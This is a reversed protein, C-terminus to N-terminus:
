DIKLAHRVPRHTELEASQPVTRSTPTALHLGLVVVLGMTLNMRLSGHVRAGILVETTSLALFALVGCLAAAAHIRMPVDGERWVRVLHAVIVYWLYCWAALGVIGAEALVHLYVNHAHWGNGRFAGDATPEALTYAVEDFTGLGTGAIPHDRFLRLADRWIGLRMGVGPNQDFAVLTSAVQRFTETSRIFRGSGLAVVVALGALTIVVLRRWSARNLVYMGLSTLGFVLTGMRSFLLYTALGAGAWALAYLTAVPWRREGLFWALLMPAVLNFVWALQLKGVWANNLVQFATVDLGEDRRWAIVRYALLIVAVALVPGLARAMRDDELLSAVLYCFGFIGLVTLFALLSLWPVQSVIVSLLFSGLLCALPPGLVGLRAPRWSTVGGGATMCAFSALILILYLWPWALVPLPTPWESVRITSAPGDGTVMLLVGCLFLWRGVTAIGPISRHLPLPGSTM